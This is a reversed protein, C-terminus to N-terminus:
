EKEQNRSQTRDRATVTPPSKIWCFLLNDSDLTYKNLLSSSVKNIYVLKTFILRGKSQVSAYKTGNM